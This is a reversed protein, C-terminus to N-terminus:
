KPENHFQERQEDTLSQTEPFRSGQWDKDLTMYDKANKGHYTKDIARNLNANENTALAVMWLRHQWNKLGIEVETLRSDFSQYRNDVVPSTRDVEREVAVTTAPLSKWVIGGMIAVSLLLICVGLFVSIFTPKDKEPIISQAQLRAQRVPRRSQQAKTIRNRIDNQMNTM